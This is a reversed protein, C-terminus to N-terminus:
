VESAIKLWDETSLEEPRSAPNIGLSELNIGKLTNQLQKRKGAFAKKAIALAKENEETSIGEKPVLKIIASDIKPTPRFSGKSIYSIIEPSSYLQVSLALLNMDPQRVVIRQAVEKQVTLIILEPTPWSNFITKLLHSTIYYPINGIVKYDSIRIDLKSNRFLTEIDLKLIDGEVIEVNTGQLGKKLDEILRRDKEIAIVRGAKESLKKTLNGTGPGIELVTDEPALEAASVIKDLIGQNILFNQGLSKKAKIDSLKMMM